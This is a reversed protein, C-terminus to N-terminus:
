RSNKKSDAYERDVKMTNQISHLVYLAKDVEGRNLLKIAINNRVEVPLNSMTGCTFWWSFDRDNRCLGDIITDNTYAVNLSEIDPILSLYNVKDLLEAPQLVRGIVNKSDKLSLIANVVFGNRFLEFDDDQILGARKAEEVKFLFNSLDHRDESTILELIFNKDRIRNVDLRM